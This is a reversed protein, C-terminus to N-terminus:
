EQLDELSATASAPELPAAVQWGASAMAELAEDRSQTYIAIAAADGERPALSFSAPITRNNRLITLVVFLEREARSKMVGDAEPERRGGDVWVARVIDVQGQRWRVDWREQDHPGDFLVDAGHRMVHQPPTTGDFSDVGVLGHKVGFSEVALGVFQSNLNDNFTAGIATGVLEIPLRRLTREHLADGWVVGFGEDEVVRCRQPDADIFVVTVGADRLERGLAIGLGQAGVIAVRNRGPLRLGLLSGLPWAVAGAFVVTGAIVLFVLARLGTGGPIGGADLIGATISAVAAAVIGRPAIMSVFLLEKAPVGTGLTATLVSVPRVVLILTALVGAGGWGLATVEGLGIDAALLVFLAGIMLVTLQDKFERLDEDVRTEINGVVLGAITVALLGSPAQVYDSVHFLAVVLALTLANEFGHVLAPLRLLGAIVLGGAAGLLAGVALRSVLAGFEGVVSLADPALTIQLVLVALLAGIPDILVGEAELVTQLRPHLRLDRVLPGVVTPGTVVVLSGFLFALPWPWGLWYRAAAAGGVLTVLVGWTILRRIVREERRLRKAKLNLAGEFLIIAVGFDVIVFLGPGLDDPEVWGLGEPGLAVGTALLLIIAPVRLPRAILQIAMGAALALAVTLPVDHSM